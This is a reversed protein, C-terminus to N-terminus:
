GPRDRGDSRALTDHGHGDGTELASERKDLDEMRREIRELRGDDM